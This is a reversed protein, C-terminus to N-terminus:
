MVSELAINCKYYVYLIRTFISITLAQARLLGRYMFDQLRMTNYKRILSWIENYVNNTQNILDQHIM